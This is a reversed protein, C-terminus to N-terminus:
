GKPKTGPHAGEYHPTRGPSETAGGTGPGTQHTVGQDPRGSHAGQDPPQGLLAPNAQSEPWPVAPDHRNLKGAKGFKERRRQERNPAPTDAAKSEPKKKTAM